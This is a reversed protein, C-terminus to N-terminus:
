QQQEVTRNGLDLSEEPKLQRLGIKPKGGFFYDGKRIQLYFPIGPVVGTLVFRGDKNTVAPKGTPSAFRYLESGATGQANISVEAGAFPNDDTDLLRGAVKGLPGLKVVVPEKEDGRIAVTGGHQQEPHVVALTRPKEPNLAYVTATPEPLKYTVPWSDTLGAVWAGALPKGDATQVLVHGTV